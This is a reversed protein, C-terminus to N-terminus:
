GPLRWDLVVMRMWYRLLTKALVKDGAHAMSMCINDACKFIYTSIMGVPVSFLGFFYHEGKGLQTDAWQIQKRSLPLEDPTRARPTLLRFLKAGPNDGLAEIFIAHGGPRLVRKIEKIAVEWDLHHLIARGVVLDFSDDDFDLRHADMVHFEARDGFRRRAEAIGKESIDIGVIKSPLQGRFTRMLEQGDFCGYNLVTGNASAALIKEQYVEEAWKSNPCTFVHLFRAQMKEMEVLVDGEDYASKERKVRDDIRSNKM